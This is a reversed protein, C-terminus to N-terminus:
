ATQDKRRKRGINKADRISMGHSAPRLMGIEGAKSSHSGGGQDYEPFCDSITHRRDDAPRTIDALRVHSVPHQLSGSNHSGLGFYPMYVDVMRYTYWMKMRTYGKGRGDGVVVIEVGGFLLMEVRCDRQDVFRM